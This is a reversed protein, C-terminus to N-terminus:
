TLLSGGDKRHRSSLTTLSHPATYSSILKRRSSSKHLYKRSPRGWTTSRRTCHTKRLPLLMTLWTVKHYTWPILRLKIGYTALSEKPVESESGVEPRLERIFRQAVKNRWFSCSTISNNSTSSATSFPSLNPPSNKRKPAQSQKSECHNPLLLSNSAHTKRRSLCVSRCSYRRYSHSWTQPPTPRRRQRKSTCRQSRRASCAEASHFTSPPSCKSSSLSHLNPKKVRICWYTKTLLVKLLM